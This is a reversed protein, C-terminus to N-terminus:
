APATGSPIETLQPVKSWPFRQGTTTLGNAFRREVVNFVIMGVLFSGIVSCGRSLLVYATGKPYIESAVYCSLYIVSFHTLFISYSREGLWVFAPRALFQALSTETRICADILILYALAFPVHPSFRPFALWLLFLLAAIGGIPLVWRRPLGRRALVLGVSFCASYQLLIASWDGHEVSPHLYYSVEAILCCSLLLLDVGRNVNSRGNLLFVAAPAVFYFIIEPTLSWWAWNYSSDSGIGLCVEKAFELSDFIPLTSTTSWWTPYRTLIFIVGGALLWAVFFPPYLRVARRTFYKFLSIPASNKLYRRLLVVGSLCFFLEVGSAGISSVVKGAVPHGSKLLANGLNALITHHLFVLGVAIARLGDLAHLRENPQPLRSHKM